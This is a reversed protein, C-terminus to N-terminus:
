VKAYTKTELLISLSKEAHRELDLVKGEIVRLSNSAFASLFKNIDEEKKKLDALMVNWKDM